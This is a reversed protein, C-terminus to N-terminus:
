EAAPSSVRAEGAQSERAQRADIAKRQASLMEHRSIGLYKLIPLYVKRIFMNRDIGGEGRM